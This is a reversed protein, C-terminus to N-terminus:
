GPVNNQLWYTYKNIEILKLADNSINYNTTVGSAKFNEETLHIM